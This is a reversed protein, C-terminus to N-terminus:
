FLRIIIILVSFNNLKFFKDFRILLKFNVFSSTAWIRGSQCWRQDKRIDVHRQWPIVLLSLGISSRIRDNEPLIPWDIWAGAVELIEFFNAKSSDYFWVMFIASQFRMSLKKLGRLVLPGGSAEPFDLPWPFFNLHSPMHIELQVMNFFTICVSAFWNNSVFIWYM